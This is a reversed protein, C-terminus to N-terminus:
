ELDIEIQSQAYINLQNDINLENVLWGRSQCLQIFDHYRDKGNMERLTIVLGFNLPHKEKSSNREKSTIKIGWSGHETYKKKPKKIKKIEECIFKVNDWKRYLTRAEEEYLKEAGDGNQPNGNISVIDVKMSGNYVNHKVRGFNIDLETTTYDVGQNRNCEPFYVLTLRSYFPHGNGEFPVPLNYNYTTYEEARGSILFRIEDNRTQVIEEIKKPVVGYGKSFSIDDKRSWQAASDIILAKALERSLGMKYILFAVKRAIWPAAFSTGVRTVAGLNNYCVVMPKRESVSEGGYYSVDPKYFFSLVPGTRTYSACQGKSNVSNVVISNLSDAPAGIRKQMADTQNTGAVIFIVDFENQIKDLEAGEPSIYNEHIEDVSGLSLNWVKIHSNEEVIKRIHKLVSFSSFGNSVAVGFHKVRFRGCNDEYDKNGKPGDVIISSVATGHIYDKESLAVNPDLLNIYEVWESFYVEKNFQTDIVGIIPENTPSPIQQIQDENSQDALYDDTLRVFDSISMAILYPASEVLKSYERQSLKCTTDNFIKDDLINIKLNSLLEKIGVETKYITVLVDEATLMSGEEVTFIDICTVDLLVKLFTSKSIDQMDIKLSNNSISNFEDSTIVGSDFNERIIQAVRLLLNQAKTLINIPVYYTFVHCMRDEIKKFKAGCMYNSPNDASNSSFLCRLRSSKPVIRNHYATIFVDRLVSQKTNWYSIVGAIDASLKDLHSACVTQGKKMTLPGPKSANPKASLDGKLQLINHM